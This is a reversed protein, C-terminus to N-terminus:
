LFDQGIPYDNADRWRQPNPSFPLRYILRVPLALWTKILPPNQPELRFDGAALFSYGAALHMAEDYTPANARIFWVGQLVFCVVLGAAIISATGFSGLADVLRLRFADFAAM